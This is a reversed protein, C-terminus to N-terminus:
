EMPDNGPTLILLLPTHPKSNDYVEKLHIIETKTFASGLSKEVFRRIAMTTMEPKMAKFLSIWGFHTLNSQFPEPLAEFAREAQETNIFKEWAGIDKVISETLMEFVPFSTLQHLDNWMKDSFLDPRPNDIFSYPEADPSLLGTLLYKLL